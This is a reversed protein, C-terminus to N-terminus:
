GAQEHERIIRELEADIRREIEAKIRSRAGAPREITPNWAATGLVVTKEPELFWDITFDDVDFDTPWDDYDFLYLDAFRKPDFEFRTHELCFAHVTQTGRKKPLRHLQWHMSFHELAAAYDTLLARHQIPVRAVPWTNIGESHDLLHQVAVAHQTALGMLQERFVDDRTYIQLWERTLHARESVGLQM